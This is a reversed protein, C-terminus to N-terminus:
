GYDFLLIKKPNIKKIVSNLFKDINVQIEYEYDEDPVINNKNIWELEENRM